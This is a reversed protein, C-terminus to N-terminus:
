EQGGHLSSTSTFVGAPVNILTGSLWASLTSDIFYKMSATMNGFRTPSGLILGACNEVEIPTVYPAGKDPIAPATAESVPSVAPVTRVKASMGNVSEVGRAIFDAMQATAGHSTYYVILVYPQKKSM